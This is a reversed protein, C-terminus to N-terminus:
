TTLKAGQAMHCRELLEALTMHNGVFSTQPPQLHVGVTAVEQRWSQDLPSLSFLQVSQVTCNGITKQRCTALM